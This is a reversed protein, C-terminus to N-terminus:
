RCRTGSSRPGPIIRWRAEASSPAPTNMSETSGSAAAACSLAAVPGEHRHQHGPQYGGGPGRAVAEGGGDAREGGLVAWWSEFGVDRHSAQEVGPLFSGALRERRQCRAHARELHTEGRHPVLLGVEARQKQARLGGWLEGREVLRGPRCPPQVNPGVHRVQAQEVCVESLFSLTGND